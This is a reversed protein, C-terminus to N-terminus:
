RVPLSNFNQISFRGSPLARWRRFDPTSFLFSRDDCLYLDIVRHWRCDQTCACSPSCPGGSGTGHTFSRRNRRYNAAIWWGDFGYAFSQRGHNSRYNKAPYHTEAINEAPRPMLGIARSIMSGVYLNLVHTVLWGGAFIFPLLKFTTKAIQTLEANSLQAAQPSTKALQRAIEDIALLLKDGGIGTMYGATILAVTLIASMNFLVNSLPYWEVEGAENEQALNVQHGAVSAPITFLLGIMIAIQPSGLTSTVVIALISAAMGATTGWSLAAVYVPLAGAMVLPLGATGLRSGAIIMLASTIGAMLGVIITKMNM